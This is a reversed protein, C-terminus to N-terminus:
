IDSCEYFAELFVALVDPPRIKSKNTYFLLTVLHTMRSTLVKMMSHKEMFQSKDLEM